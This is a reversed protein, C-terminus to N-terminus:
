LDIIADLGLAAMAGQYAGGELLNRLEEQPDHAQWYKTRFADHVLVREDDTLYVTLDGSVAIVRGTIRGTFVRRDKDEVAVKYEQSASLTKSMAAKRNLEKTVADRLLRSFPLQVAKAREGLEDPLYVTIDM